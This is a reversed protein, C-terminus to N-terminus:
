EHSCDNGGRGEPTKTPVLKLAAANVYSCTVARLLFLFLRVRWSDFLCRSADVWRPGKRPDMTATESLDSQSPEQKGTVQLIM